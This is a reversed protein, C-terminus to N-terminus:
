SYADWALLSPLPDYPAGGARWGPATWLEFHLHCGTASGTSGVNGIWQGTSVVLGVIPIAPSALHMYVYDQGSLAGRIVTYFGAGSAQYSNVLVIGGQAAVMQSGCAAAVDQGQHIHDGRDAGFLSGTGGFSHAGPVPFVHDGPVPPQVKAAAARIKKAQARQVVGDIPWTRQREVGKVARRTGPGFAGDVGTTMQLKNLFGQLMRIDPGTMGSRMLRAGYRYRPKRKRALQARVHPPLGAASARGPHRTLDPIRGGENAGQREAQAQQAGLGILCLVIGAVMVIAVRAPFAPGSTIPTTRRNLHITCERKRDEM